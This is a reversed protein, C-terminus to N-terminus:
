VKRTGVRLTLALFALGGLVGALLLVGVPPASRDGQDTPSTATDAMGQFNYVHLMIKGDADNATNLRITGGGFTELSQQDNNKDIVPPTFRLTGFRFNPDPDETVTVNGSQVPEFMYHSIDLCVDGSIRGDGNADLKVDSECLKAAASNGPMRTTNGSSRVSFSFDKPDSKIGDSSADGPNVATPCALVTQVLAAVPNGGGKAEVARFDSESRIDSSCYHSMVSVTVNGDAAAVPASSLALMAPVTLLLLLRKPM